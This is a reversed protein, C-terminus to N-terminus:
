SMRAPRAPFGQPLLYAQRGANRNAPKASRLVGTPPEAIPERPDQERARVTLTPQFGDPRLRRQRPQAAPYADFTGAPYSHVQRSSWLPLTPTPLLPWSSTGYSGQLPSGDANKAVIPTLGLHGLKPAVDMEWGFWIITYGQRM